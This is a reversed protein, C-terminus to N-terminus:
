IGVRQCLAEFRPDGSLPQFREEIRLQRVGSFHENVAQEILDLTAQRQGLGLRILALDMPAVYRTRAMELVENLLRQADDRRGAIGYAHGLSCLYAPDRGSADVAKEHYAIAEDLAGQQLKLRGLSWYAPAFRANMELVRKWQAEAEAFRGAYFLASGVNSNIILSLPDLSQARRVEAIAEEHRGRARLLHAYWHHTTAYNPNIENARRFGAEAAVWDWDFSMRIMALSAHAEALEPDITLARTAAEKAKPMAETAAVVGQDTLVIYADAIGVYPLAEDPARKVARQFYDIARTLGERDRRNWFFRGQLYLQYAEPDVPHWRAFRTEASPSVAVQVGKAVARAVESQLSLIDKLHQEYQESWVLTRDKAQILKATIRVRDGGRRVTGEVVYDVGLERGLEAVDIAKNKYQISSGRAIVSLRLPDIRGLQMIMEDTLGDSFYEQAPDDSLNQFPLVVLMLRRAAAGQAGRAVAAPGGAAAQGRARNAASTWIWASAAAGLVAVALLVTTARFRRSRPAAPAPPPGPPPMSMDIAGQATRRGMGDLHEVHALFRYGRRPLTEIYRPTDAQDRLAIRVQKICFNLGQDFDVFTEESWIERKMEERTVLEGSRRALLSLVKFPQQQLKVLQGQRRLEGTRLDLEFPDFRLLAPEPGREVPSTM